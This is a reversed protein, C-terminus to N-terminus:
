KYITHLLANALSLVISFIIAWLFGDIFFGPVLLSTLWVMIANLIFTFLGLTVITIPLTLIFLIPKIIANFIGLVLSVVLATFFNTVHVGPLIYSIVLIILASLIWYILM